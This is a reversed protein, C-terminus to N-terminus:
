QVSVRGTLPAVTVSKSNSGATIQLNASALGFTVTNTVTFPTGWNDFLLTNKSGGAGFNFPNPSPTLTSNGNIRLTVPQKTVQHYVTGANGAPESSLDAQFVSFQTSNNDYLVAHPTGTRVAERHAIRILEELQIALAELRQVETTAASPLLLSVLLTLLALGAVVSALTTPM